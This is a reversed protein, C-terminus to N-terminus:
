MEGPTKNCYHYLQNAKNKLHIIERVTIRLEAEPQSDIKYTAPHVFCFCESPLDKEEENSGRDEDEEDSPSCGPCVPGDWPWTPRQVSAGGPDRLLGDGGEVVGLM